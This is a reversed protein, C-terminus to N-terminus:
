RPSSQQKYANVLLAVTIAVYMVGAMGELAALMRVEGRLAVVDGYGVTTLTVLSFYLLESERNMTGSAHSISGPYFVEITRYLAFWEMALLLYISMAVYLHSNTISRANRLHSFLGVVTFAFFVAMLGWKIGLLTRHSIFMDALTSILVCLMLFVSPWVWAKTNALRVTALLVPVFMLGGIILRRFDGRDLAPYALIVVLISVLLLLETQRQDNEPM